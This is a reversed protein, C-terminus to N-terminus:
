ARLWTRRDRATWYLSEVDAPKLLGGRRALDPIESDRLIGVGRARGPEIREADVLVLLPQVAATLALAAREARHRADRLLPAPAARGVAVLPDAIRVRRRTADLTSVALVGAPGVLLHDITAGGPLPVAHLVRWGADDLRDLAAGAREQAALARRRPDARFRHGTAYRELETLLAEGPRNPALDDDPHLALRALDAVTPVPPPGVILEGVAYPRLAALVADRHDDLLLSVRGSDREYWAAARGDPLSVYLRAQGHRHVPTVRLGAM